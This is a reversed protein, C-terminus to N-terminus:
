KVARSVSELADAIENMLAEWDANNSIRDANFLDSITKGLVVASPLWAPHSTTLPKNLKTLEISINYGQKEAIMSDTKGAKILGAVTRFNAAFAAAEASLNDTKITKAMAYIRKAVGFQGDAPEFPDVAPKPPVVPAVPTVPAIPKAPEPVVPKDPTAPTVPKDPQPTPNIPAFLEGLKAIDAELLAMEAKLRSLEAASSRRHKEADARLRTTRSALSERQSELSGSDCGTAAFLVLVITIINKV